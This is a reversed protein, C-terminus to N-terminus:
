GMVSEYRDGKGAGTLKFSVLKARKRFTTTVMPKGKDDVGQVKTFFNEVTGGVLTWDGSKGQVVRPHLKGFLKMLNALGPEVPFVLQNHSVEEVKAAVVAPLENCFQEMFDTNIQGTLIQPDSQNPIRRLSIVRSESAFEAKKIAKAGKLSCKWGNNACVARLSEINAPDIELVEVGGGFAYRTPGFQRLLDSKVHNYDSVMSEAVSQEPEVLATQPLGSALIKSDDYETWRKVSVVNARPYWPPTILVVNTNGLNPRTKNDEPETAARILAIQDEDRCKASRKVGVFTLSPHHRSSVHAKNGDEIVPKELITIDSYRSSMWRVMSSDFDISAARFLLVGDPRLRETVWELLLSLGYSSSKLSVTDISVIDYQAMGAMGTNVSPMDTKLYFEGRNARETVGPFWHVEGCSGTPHCGEGIWWCEAHKTLHEVLPIWRGFLFARPRKQKDPEYDDPHLWNITDWNHSEPSKTYFIEMGATEVQFKDLQEATVLRVQTITQNRYGGNRNCSAVVGGTLTRDAGQVIGIVPLSWPLRLNLKAM